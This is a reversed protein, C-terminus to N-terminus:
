AVGRVSVATAVASILKVIIPNSGVRKLQVSAGVSAPLMDFDNGGVTPDTTAGATAAGTHSIFVEGLGNRNVVEYASSNDTPTFTVTSVTNAVLTIHRNFAM